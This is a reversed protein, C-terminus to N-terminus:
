HLGDDGELMIQRSVRRLPSWSLTVLVLNRNLQSANPSRTLRRATLSLELASSLRRHWEASVFVGHVHSSSTTPVVLTYDTFGADLRVRTYRPQGAAIGAFASSEWTADRVLGDSRQRAGGFYVTATRPLSAALSANFQYSGGGVCVASGLVSGASAQLQLAHTLSSSALIGLSETTCQVAAYNERSLQAYLGLSSRESVQDRYLGSLNFQENSSDTQFFHHYFTGFTLGLTKTESLRHDLAFLAHTSLVNGSTLGLATVDPNPVAITGLVSSNLNGLVRAADSGFGNELTFSWGTNRAVAGQLAAASLQYQQPGLNTGYSQTFTSDQQLLIDFRRKRLLTGFYGEATLIGGSLQPVDDVASDYGSSVGASYRFSRAQAGDLYVPSGGNLLAVPTAAASRLDAQDL